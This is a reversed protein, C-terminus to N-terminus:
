RSTPARDRRFAAAVELSVRTRTSHKRFLLGVTRGELPRHSERRRQKAKLEDALDLIPGSSPRRGTASARALARLDLSLAPPLPM